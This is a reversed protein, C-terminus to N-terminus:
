SSKKRTPLHPFWSPTNPPPEEQTEWRQVNDQSCLCQSFREELSDKCLHKKLTWIQMNSIMVGDLAFAPKSITWHLLPLLERWSLTWAPKRDVISSRPERFEPDWGQLGTHVSTVQGEEHWYPNSSQFQCLHQSEQQQLHYIRQERVLLRMDKGLLCPMTASHCPLKCNSGIRLGTM